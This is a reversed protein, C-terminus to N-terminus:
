QIPKEIRECEIVWLWPNSQYSEAGNIKVWLQNFAGQPTVSHHMEVGKCIYGTKDRIIGEAIADAESIDHLREVRVNKVQLFIRSFEKYLHISPCNHWENPALKREQLKALTNFSIEKKNYVKFDDMGEFSIYVQNDYNLYIKYSERVWLVDGTQGYPCKFWPLSYQTGCRMEYRPISDIHEEQILSVKWNADWGIAPKIIRRTQTKRGALIAQVMPTSFLIPHEKM